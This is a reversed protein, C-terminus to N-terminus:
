RRGRSSRRRRRGRITSRQTWARHSRRPRGPPRESPPALPRPGASGGPPPTRSSPDILRLDARAGQEGSPKREFEPLFLRLFQETPNNSVRRESPAIWRQVQVKFMKPDRRFEKQIASADPIWRGQYLFGHYVEERYRNSGDPKLYVASRFSATAGPGLAIPCDLPEGVPVYGAAPYCIDPTHGFILDARGFLVLVALTVGTTKDAYTRLLYTSAGAIQLIRPDLTKEGGDRVQWDGLTTPLDKLSFPAHVEQDLYAGYRRDQWGRVAGSTGLLLSVLVTWGLVSRPAPPWGRREPAAGTQSPLPGNSM